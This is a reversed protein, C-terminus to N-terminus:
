IIWGSGKEDDEIWGEPTRELVVTGGTGGRRNELVQFYQQWVVTAQTNVTFWLAFEQWDAGKKGRRALFDAVECPHWQGSHWLWCGLVDQPGLTEAELFHERGPGKSTRVLNPGLYALYTNEFKGKLLTQMSAIVAQRLDDPIDAIAAIEPAATQPRSGFLKSFFRPLFPVEVEKVSYGTSWNDM